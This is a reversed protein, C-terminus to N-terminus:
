YNIRLLLLASKKNMQLGSFRYTGFKFSIHELHNCTIYSAAQLKLTPAQVEILRAAAQYILYIKQNRM